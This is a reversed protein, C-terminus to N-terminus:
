LGLGVSGRWSWEVCEDGGCAPPILITNHDDDFGHSQLMAWTKLDEGQAGGHQRGAAGAVEHSAGSRSSTSAQPGLRKPSVAEGTKALSDAMDVDASGVADVDMADGQNGQWKEGQVRGRKPRLVMRLTGLVEVAFRAPLFGTWRIRVLDQVQQKEDQEQNGEGNNLLSTQYVPM